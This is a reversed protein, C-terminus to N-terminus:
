SQVLRTAQVGVAPDMLMAAIDSDQPSGPGTGLQYPYALSSSTSSIMPKPPMFELWSGGEAAELGVPFAYSLQSIIFIRLVDTFILKKVKPM